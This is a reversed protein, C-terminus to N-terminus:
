GRVSKILKNYSYIKEDLPEGNKFCMQDPLYVPNGNEDFLHDHAYDIAKLMDQGCKYYAYQFNLDRIPLMGRVKKWRSKESTSAPNVLKWYEVEETLTIWNEYEKDYKHGAIRCFKQVLSPPVEGYITKM